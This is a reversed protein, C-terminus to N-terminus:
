RSIMFSTYEELPKADEEYSVETVGSLPPGKHLWDVFKFLDTEKGEVEFYVSGDPENRVFGTIGYSDAVEKAYKRFWVGQVRGLVKIKFHKRM